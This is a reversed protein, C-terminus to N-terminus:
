PRARLGAQIAGLGDDFRTILKCHLQRLALKVSSVDFDNSNRNLFLSPPRALGADGELRAMVSALVVADPFQLRIDDAELSAARAIVEADVPFVEACQLVRARISELRHEADLTDKVLSAMVEKWAHQQPESFGESRRRKELEKLLRGQLAEADPIERRLKEAPEIFCFAPICLQLAKAEALQLLQECALAQEQRFALELIFNTEVFVRM